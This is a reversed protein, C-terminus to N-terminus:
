NSIDRLVKTQTNFVNHKNKEPFSFEIIASADSFYADEGNDQVSMEDTKLEFIGPNQLSEM